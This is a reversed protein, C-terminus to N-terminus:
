SVNAKTIESYTVIKIDLLLSIISSDMDLITRGDNRLNHKYDRAVFRLLEKKLAPTLEQIISLDDIRANGKLRYKKLLELGNAFFEKNYKNNFVPQEPHIRHLVEYIFSIAFNLYRATIKQGFVVMSITDLLSVYPTDQDNSYIIAFEHEVDNNKDNLLSLLVSNDAGIADNDSSSQNSITTDNQAVSHRTSCSARRMDYALDTFQNTLCIKTTETHLAHNEFFSELEKFYINKMIRVADEILKPDKKNDYIGVNIRSIDCNSELITMNKIFSYALNDSHKAFDRSSIESFHMHHMYYGILKDETAQLVLKSNGHLLKQYQQASALLFHGFGHCTFSRFELKRGDKSKSKMGWTTENYEKSEVALWLVYSSTKNPKLILAAVVMEKYYHLPKKKTRSNLKRGIIIMIINNDDNVAKAVSDQEKDRFTFQRPIFDYVMDIINVVVDEKNDHNNITNGIYKHKLNYSTGIIVRFKPKDKKKDLLKDGTDNIAVIKEGAYFGLRSDVPFTSAAEQLSIDIYDNTLKTLFDTLIIDGYQYLTKTTM